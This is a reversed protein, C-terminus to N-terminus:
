RYRCWSASATRWRNRTAVPSSEITSPSGCIRPCTFSAQDSARSCPAKPLRRSRSNWCVKATALRARVSVRIPTLGTDTADVATRRACFEKALRGSEVTSSIPAPSVM